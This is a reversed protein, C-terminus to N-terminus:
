PLAGEGRHLGAARPTFGGSAEHLVLPPALALPARSGKIGRVLVRVAPADARPHVACVVSAGLGGGALAPLLAPLTDPRHIMAFLGGPRLLALCAAVWPKVGAEDTYAARRLPDPSARGRGEAHFPPNTIVVDAKGHGLGAARLEDRSLLDAAIARGRVGNRNLNDAALGALRPDRELLVAELSPARIAAALGAAGVGAGVDLLTGAAGEPVCAALLVADTGARHGKAPQLLRLRGGLIADDTLPFDRAESPPSNM